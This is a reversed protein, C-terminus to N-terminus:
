VLPRSHAGVSPVFSFANACDRRTARDTNCSRYGGAPSAISCTSPFTSEHSWIRATLDALILQEVPFHSGAPIM